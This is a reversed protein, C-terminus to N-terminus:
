NQPKGERKKGKWNSYSNFIDLINKEIEIIKWVKQAREKKKNPRWSKKQNTKILKAM